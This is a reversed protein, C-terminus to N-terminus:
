VTRASPARRDKYIVVNSVGNKPFVGYILRAKQVVSDKLSVMIFQSEKSREELIRSLKESNPADLHADVEDFLYFPSPKLRQLALVFVIAALTKEGGSISTSARKPKNPFQIMYSIGSEFINDENQLELWANGGTMKNFILRIEKDVNDFADLFKQRKDKEIGEIFRVISNREGELLNKRASTSRYGESVEVYLDPAKANLDGLSGLEAELGAVLPDVEFTDAGAGLGAASLVKQLGEEEESLDRVDRGLSDSRRELSSIRGSLDREAATLEALRSDLEAIRAMPSSTAILEQERDRLGVLHAGESEARAALEGVRSELGARESELSESEAALRKSESRAAGQRAVLEALRGSREAYERAAGTQLAEAEAKKSNAEALAAAIRDQEGASYGRGAEAIRERLSAARSQASAASSGLEGIRGALESIRGDRAEATRAVSAMRSELNGHMESVTALAQESRSLRARNSAAEADLRKIAQKQKRIYAKLKGISRLVGEIDGSMSILKTLRSLKSNIDIVVTGGRAEFYEGALTVAKYGRRSAAHASKQDRVLVVNGFLFTKLAAHAPDCRVYDSLLGVVGPGRPLDPKFEPIADLPIIKLKPLGRGRAAEAIGLLTAFDPVVMAKIWDSSAALAPREYRADWTIMEYVLGLIGLRGANEKLSAVTYDEHMYKRVTRIRSEYNTASRTSKELLQGLEEIDEEIKARKEGAKRIRSELESIADRHNGMKAELRSKSAALASLDRGVDSHKARNAALNEESESIGNRAKSLELEARHLEATLSRIEADVRSMAAAASSQEALVRSRESDAAEMQASALDRKKRAEGLMGEAGGVEAGLSEAGSMIGDLESRIDGLRAGIQGIRNRAAAAQSKSGEHREMASSIEADLARKKREYDNAERHLGSKEAQHSGAEGRASELEGRLRVLESSIEALSSEKSSRAASVERMRNAAAIARYRGMERGLLDYRLKQNRDEELREINGRIEDMKALVVKLNTDAKALNEEAKKKNNDFFKLGVLEEITKRRDDSTFESIRTVTGQQVANLQGLGADAVELMKIIEERPIKKRNLYYTSKAEADLERTIEVSGSDVPIKRDSNDFHVSCRAMKTGRRQGEIDHILSRLSDVRMMKPKMEGMAFIIADLINSKGSGNPGSISVLGPEFNVTTNRFGFSKFGYIEVKKVHVM